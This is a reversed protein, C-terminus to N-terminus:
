KCLPLVDLKLALLLVFLVRIKSRMEANTFVKPDKQFTKPIDLFQDKVFYSFHIKKQSLSIESKTYQKRNVHKIIM